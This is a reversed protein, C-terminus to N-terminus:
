SLKELRNILPLRLLFIWNLSQSFLCVNIVDTTFHNILIKKNVM